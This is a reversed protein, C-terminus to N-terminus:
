ETVTVAPAGSSLAQAIDPVTVTDFGFSKSDTCMVPKVTSKVPVSSSVHVTWSDTVGVMASLSEAPKVNLQSKGDRGNNSAPAMTAVALQSPAAAPVLWLEAESGGPGAVLM